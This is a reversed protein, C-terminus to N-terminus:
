DVLARSMQEALPGFLYSLVTRDGTQIFVDAPMGPVLSTGAPLKEPENADLAVNLQYFQAGTAPDQTLDPAISTVRASLQPTSRVDLGSFAVQVPQGVFVKEIDLPGLRVDLTQQDGEPVIQMLTEAPAVIGGVTHVSSQYIEGNVPSRLELRQLRAEAAAKRQLLEQTVQSVKALEQLVEAQFNDALQVRSVELEAISARTAAITSSIRGLEGQAEARARKVESVRTSETLGQTLLVQLREEDAMLLDAQAKVAQEQVLLGSIQENRQVIQQQVQDLRGALSAKRSQHLRAQDGLLNALEPDVPWDAALAPMVIADSQVSEASLRAQRALADRLQSTVIALETRAVVDDLRLLVDGAKVADGDQVLIERVIGGEPHQVLKSGGAVTVVGGAVVAGAISTTAMWGGLCGVLVALTGLGVVAHKHLSKITHTEPPKNAPTTQLL